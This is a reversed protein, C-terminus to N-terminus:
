PERGAPTPHAFDLDALAKADADRRLRYYRLIKDRENWIIEEFRALWECPCGHVLTMGNFTVSSVADDREHLVVAKPSTRAHERMEEAEGESISTSDPCYHQRGCSCYISPGGIGGGIAELMHRTPEKM